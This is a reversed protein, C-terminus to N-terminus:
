FMASDADIKKIVWNATLVLLFGVVSQYIGAASVMGLNSMGKMANYIYTDLVQTTPYLAGSNQTVSYFLGMDARIIGGMSNILNICLITKLHPITIYRNQQWRSAGDLVAAEYLEPSIGSIIATYTVSSFGVGRWANIFVIFFPWMGPMNYWNQQKLGLAVLLNNVFGNQYDLFGFVIMAIVVTSLFFPMILITQTIKAFRKNTLENILLALAVSLTTNVIIFALNYLVTNRTIDWTVTSAFLFEFNKFGTFPSTLLGKSYDLDQFAMVIGVMPLYSFILLAIVAPVAMSYLMWNRKMELVFGNKKRAPNPLRTATKM